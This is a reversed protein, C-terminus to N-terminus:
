DKHCLVEYKPAKVEVENFPVVAGQLNRAVGGPVYVGPKHHFGLFGNKEGVLARAIYFTTGDEEFGAEVANEPVFGDACELWETNEFAVLVEHGYKIRVERGFYGVLATSEGKRIKGIRFSSGIQVRAVFVPVGDTDVGAAVAGEPVGGGGPVARWNAHYRQARITTQAHTLMARSAPVCGNKFRIIKHEKAYFVEGGFEPCVEIELPSFLEPDKAMFSAFGIDRYIWALMESCFVKDKSEPFPLFEARLKRLVDLEKYVPDSASAIVRLPNAIPYSFNYFKKHIDVLLNPRKELQSALFARAMKTLPVIAVDADGEGVVSEFERIQPGLFFSNESIHRDLPLIKSDLIWSGHTLSSSLVCSCECVVPGIRGSFVSEYIYLKGDEMFDLPLVSKDVIIGSHTWLAHFPAELNPVVEHLEIRKIFPDTGGFLVADFPKPQYTGDPLIDHKDSLLDDASPANSPINTSAAGSLFGTLKQAFSLMVAPPPPQKNCFGIYNVPERDRGSSRSQDWFPRNVSIAVYQAFDFGCRDEANCCMDWLSNRLAIATLYTQQRKGAESEQLQQCVLIHAGHSPTFRLTVEFISVFEDILSKATPNNFSPIFSMGMKMYWATTHMVPTRQTSPSGSRGEDQKISGDAIIESLLSQLRDYQNQQKYKQPITMMMFDLHVKNTTKAFEVLEIAKLRDNMDCLEYIDIKTRMMRLVCIKIVREDTTKSQLIFADFMEDVLKAGESSQLSPLAKLAVRSYEVQPPSGCLVEATPTALLQLSQSSPVFSSVSVFASAGISSATLPLAMTTTSTDNVPPQQQQNRSQMMANLDLANQLHEATAKHALALQENEARLTAIIPECDVCLRKEAQLRAVEAELEKIRFGDCDSKRDSFHFTLYRNDKRERFARQAMRNRLVRRDETSPDCELRRTRSAKPAAPTPSAQKM